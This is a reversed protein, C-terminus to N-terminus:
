RAVLNDSEALLAHISITLHGGIHLLWGRREGRPSRPNFDNDITGRIHQKHDSEALLAHISIVRVFYLSNSCLTARRSSLTSQFIKSLSFPAHSLLREGRPSRPNFNDPVELSIMLSPREGRPSRPNFNPPITSPIFSESTARRSSLTSQFPINCKQGLIARLTARRSSLTSQFPLALPVIAVLVM